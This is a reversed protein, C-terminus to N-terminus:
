EDRLRLEYNGGEQVSVLLETQAPDSYKEPLSERGNSDMPGVPSNAPFDTGDPLLIRSVTVRYQGAVLGARGDYGQIRYEGQLSTRGSGGQGTTSEHPIFTVLANPLPKDGRLVIGQVPLLTTAEGSSCGSCFLALLLGIRIICNM